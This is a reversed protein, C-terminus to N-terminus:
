RPNMPSAARSAFFRRLLFADLVAAIVLVQYALLAPVDATQAILRSLGFGVIWVDMSMCIRRFVDQAIRHVLMHGLPMGLLVAPLLWGTLEWTQSTFLGLAVYAISTLTSEALRTVALSVKFDSKAFGQNNFFLALPPGSITTLSYLVGIGVGFPLAAARENRIRWRWGAAQTLALPLLAGYCTLKVTSGDLADLLLSGIGVGPLIGLVIPAVRPLCARIAHRNLYVACGNLGLEIIVLAPNLTRSTVLLLAVPVTISSFGYGLAGTVTAAFFATLALLLLSDLDSRGLAPWAGLTLVRSSDM